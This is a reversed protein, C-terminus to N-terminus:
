PLGISLPLVMLSSPAMRICGFYRSRSLRRGIRIIPGERASPLQAM